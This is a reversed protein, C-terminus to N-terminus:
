DNKIKKPFDEPHQQFHELGKNLLYELTEEETAFGEAQQIKVIKESLEPSITVAQKDKNIM